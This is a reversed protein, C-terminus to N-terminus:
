KWVLVLPSAYESTSRRIIEKEEMEGLVQRLKQYQSPPVRRYPLRFPRPDSLHIRHIFGKAEGCDLHHRSFIDEYRVILDAMKSRCQESVDRSNMDLGSLGVSELKEHASHLDDKTLPSETPVAASPCSILPAEASSTEDMNELAMCSFVDALKANRRVLVPRDSTNILKLPVWRDGWLPTVVRVVLIGRPASRCSTLETTVTSGPSVITSKPLKGWILYERGPELCVASNCRVTGIKDPVDEGSWRNLGALMSLFQEAEPDYAPYPTSM